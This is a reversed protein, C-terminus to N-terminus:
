QWLSKKRLLTFTEGEGEFKGTLGKKSIKGHFKGTLGTPMVISFKIQNGSVTIPVVVPTTPTGEGFQVVGFYGDKALVIFIEVGVVDESSM